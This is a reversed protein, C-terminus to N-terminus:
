PIGILIAYSSYPRLEVLGDSERGGWSSAKSCYRAEGGEHADCCGRM